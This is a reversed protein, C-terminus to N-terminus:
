HSKGAVWSLGRPPSSLIYRAMPLSAEAWCPTTSLLGQVMASALGQELDISSSKALRFCSLDLFQYMSCVLRDLLDPLSMNIYIMTLGLMSGSIYIRSSLPNKQVDTKQFHRYCFLIDEFVNHISKHLSIVSPM